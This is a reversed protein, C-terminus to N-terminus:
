DNPIEKENLVYITVDEDHFISKIMAEIIMWDGGALGAGIKPFGIRRGGDPQDTYSDLYDKMMELANYLSDYNLDRVGRNRNGYGFQSYLNFGVLLGGLMTALTMGGLKNRGGKTTACDAEYMDPFAAKIQPAIGSGMTNFCNCGHAFYDIAGSQAAKILDGVKYKFSM